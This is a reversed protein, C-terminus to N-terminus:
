TARDAKKCQFIIYAQRCLCQSPKGYTKSSSGKQIKMYMYMSVTHFYSVIAQIYMCTGQAELRYMNITHKLQWGCENVRSMKVTIDSISEGPTQVHIYVGPAQMYM